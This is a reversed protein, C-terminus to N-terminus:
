GIFCKMLDVTDHEGKLALLVWQCLKYYYVLTKVDKDKILSAEGQIEDRNCKTKARFDGGYHEPTPPSDSM